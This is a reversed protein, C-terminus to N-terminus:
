RAGAVKADHLRRDVELSTTHLEAVRRLATKADDSRGAARLANALLYFISPEDPNLGAAEQLFQVAECSQNLRLKAKGLYMRTAWSDPDMSRARELYPVGRLLIAPKSWSDVSSTLRAPM